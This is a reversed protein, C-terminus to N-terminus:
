DLEFTHAIAPARYEAAAVMVTLNPAPKYLAAHHTHGCLVLLQKAPFEGALLRLMEGLAVNVFHPAYNPESPRGEYLAAEVFPPVHTGIILKEATKLAERAVREIYAASEDGLQNLRAFLTQRDLERFDAILSHDNLRITSRNGLGARGDAWGRHGILATRATLPIIEGKGLVHLNSYTLCMREVEADVEAFAGHYFDHNGLVFYVPSRMDLAMLRLNYALDSATGIDGTILVPGPYGQDVEELFRHAKRSNLFELHPDSVWTLKM